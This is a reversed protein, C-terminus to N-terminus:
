RRRRWRHGANYVHHGGRPPKLCREAGRRDHHAPRDANSGLGSMLVCSLDPKMATAADVFDFGSHGQPLSVDVLALVIGPEAAQAALGTEMDEAMVAEQGLVRCIQTMLRALDANDDVILVTTDPM